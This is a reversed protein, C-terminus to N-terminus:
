ENATTRANPQTYNSTVSTPIRLAPVTVQPSTWSTDHLPFASSLRFITTPDLCTTTTNAWSIHSWNTSNIICCQKTPKSAFPLIIWELRKTFRNWKDTINAIRHVFFFFPNLFIHGNEPMMHTISEQCWITNQQVHSKITSPISQILIDLFNPEKADSAPLGM